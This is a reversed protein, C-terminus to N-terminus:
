TVIFFYLYLFDMLVMLIFWFIGFILTKNLIPNMCFIAMFKNRFLGLRNTKQQYFSACLVRESALNWRLGPLIQCCFHVQGLHFFLSLEYINLPSYFLSLTISPLSSDQVWSGQNCVQSRDEHTKPVKSFHREFMSLLALIFPTAVPLSLTTSLM